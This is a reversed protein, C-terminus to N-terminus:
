RLSLARQLASSLRVVASMRVFAFPANTVIFFVQAPPLM